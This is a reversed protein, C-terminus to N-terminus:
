LWFLNIVENNLMTGKNILIRNVVSTCHNSAKRLCTKWFAGSKSQWMQKYQPFTRFVSGKWNHNWNPFPRVKAMLIQDRSEHLMRSVVESTTRCIASSTCGYLIWDPFNKSVSHLDVPTTAYQEYQTRWMRGVAVSQRYGTLKKHYRMLQVM